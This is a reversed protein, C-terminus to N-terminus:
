HLPLAATFPNHYAKSGIYPMSVPRKGSSRGKQLSVLGGTEEQESATSCPNNLMNVELCVPYVCTPCESSRQSSHPMLFGDM